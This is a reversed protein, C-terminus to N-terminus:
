SDAIFHNNRLFIMMESFVDKPNELFMAHGESEFVIKQANPILEALECQKEFPITKDNAGIMILTPAEFNGLFEMNNIRNTQHIYEAYTEKGVLMADELFAQIMEDSPPRTMISTMLKKLLWRKKAALKILPIIIKSGYSITSGFGTNMLILGSLIEPHDIAIRIGVAGGMSMGVYIVSGLSLERSFQYVDDALQAVNCGYDIHNSKGHGRMDIAYAHFSDPLHPIFYNQWMKSSALFGHAFIIPKGGSGFEDYHLEVNNIRIEPM